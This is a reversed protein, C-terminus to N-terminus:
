PCPDCPKAEGHLVAYCKEGALHGDGFKGQVSKNGYILNYERDIVIIEDSIGDLISPCLNDHHDSHATV